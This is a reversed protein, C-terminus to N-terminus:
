FGFTNACQEARGLDKDLAAMTKGMDPSDDKIWSRLVNLYVVTLGAVKAAGTFGNTNLGAAEMMWTMSRCLHPMSIVAQKPDLKFSNLIAAIGERHDNLADFREMLVDFLRDRATLEDDVKGMGDLVKRDIMRGLACLIDTKDDFHDHLEALSAGADQAIDQLTVHEWGLETALKLASLVAADKSFPATKKTTATKKSAAKKATPAKKPTAKKAM